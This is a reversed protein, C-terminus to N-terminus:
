RGTCLAGGDAWPNDLARSEGDCEQIRDIMLNLLRYIISGLKKLIWGSETAAVKSWAMVM